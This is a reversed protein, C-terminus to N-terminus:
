IAKHLNLAFVTNLTQHPTKRVQTSRQGAFPDDEVASLHSLSSYRIACSKTPYFYSFFSNENDVAAM